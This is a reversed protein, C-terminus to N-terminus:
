LARTHGVPRTYIWSRRSWATSFRAGYMCCGPGRPGRLYKRGTASLMDCGIAEVDLPLQGISQCADALYSVEAERAVQLFAIVNSAYEAVVTLIRDGPRFPIAYFAMDWARTANEVIAIEERQCRLLRAAAEYVQAVAEHAQAAAEYGGVLAELELHGITAHLVAQPM